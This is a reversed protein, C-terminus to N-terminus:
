PCATIVAYTRQNSTLKMAAYSGWNIKGFTGEFNTVIEEIPIVAGPDINLGFTINYMSPSPRVKLQRYWVSKICQKQPTPIPTSTATQTPTYTPPPNPSKTATFTPSATPPIPTYTFSATPILTATSGPTITPSHSPTGTISTFYGPPYDNWIEFDDYYQSTEGLVNTYESSHYMKFVTQDHLKAGYKTRGELHAIEQRPQGEKTIAVYWEGDTESYKFFIEMTFWQDFPVPINQHEKNDWYVVCSSTSGEFTDCNDPSTQRAKFYWVSSNPNKQLFIGHRATEGGSFEPWTHSEWIMYWPSWSSFSPVTTINSPIYMRYRYFQQDFKNPTGDDRWFVAQNLHWQSRSVGGVVNTNRLRLVKNNAGTPDQVIEMRGGQFWGYAQKVWDLSSYNGTKLSSWNGLSGDVGEIWNDKASTISADGTIHTTGEFGSMFSPAFGEARPFTPTALTVLSPSCATLILALLLIIKKM